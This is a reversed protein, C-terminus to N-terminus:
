ECGDSEQPSPSKGKGIIKEISVPKGLLAQEAWEHLDNLRKRRKGCGCPRGLWETVREETVGVLALARSVVDGLRWRNKPPECPQRKLKATDIQTPGRGEDWAQRYNERTDYLKCFSPTMRCGHKPCDYAKGATEPLDCDCHIM